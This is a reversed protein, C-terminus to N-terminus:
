GFGAFAIRVIMSEQDKQKSIIAKLKEEALESIKVM